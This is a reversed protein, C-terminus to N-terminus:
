IKRFPLIERLKPERLYIGLWIVLGFVVQLVFADGVRWHTIITGGMYGTLLIAGLVATQPILYFVVCALEIFALPFPINAPLGLKEMGQLFEEGGKLKMMASMIFPLSILVSVVRGAWTMKDAKALAM